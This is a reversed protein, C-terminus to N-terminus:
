TRDIWWEELAQCAEAQWISEVSHALVELVERVVAEEIASLSRLRSRRHNFRRM